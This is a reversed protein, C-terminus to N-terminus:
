REAEEPIQRVDLELTRITPDGMERLLRRTPRALIQRQLFHIAAAAEVHESPHEAPLALIAAAAGALTSWAQRERATFPDQEPAVAAALGYAPHQPDTVPIPDRSM